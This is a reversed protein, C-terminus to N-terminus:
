LADYNKKGEAIYRAVTLGALFAETDQVDDYWEIKVPKGTKRLPLACRLHEREAYEYAPQVYQRLVTWKEPPGDVITIQIPERLCKLMMKYAATQLATSRQAKTCKWDPLLFTGCLEGAGEEGIMALDIQGALELGPDFVFYETITPRFGSTRLFLDATQIYPAYDPAKLYYAPLDIQKRIILSCAAHVCKGRWLWEDRRPHDRYDSMGAANIVSTVGALRRGDFHYTHARENFIINHV